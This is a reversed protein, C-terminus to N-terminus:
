INEACKIEIPPDQDLEPLTKRQVYERLIMLAQYSQQYINQGIAFDIKGTKLLRITSDTLDHCVIHIQGERGTDKVADACGTVSHNAMYIGKIRPNKELMEKVRVYTQTYDNYTEIAHLKNEQFGKELICEEFGEMRQRHGSFEKNGIAILIEDNSQLIKSLLSGAVRGNKKDNQGVFCLRQSDPLDSNMTVVGIGKDNLQNVRQVIAQHDKACLAIGHVEQAELWSLRELYEDTLNTDCIQLLIKVGYDKLIEEAGNIGRLLEQRLYGSENTLLVGLRISQMNTLANNLGLMAAQEAKPPIYGLERMSNMVKEAIEPRVHPRGNLVRDVTGRSVGAHAAVSNITAKKAM